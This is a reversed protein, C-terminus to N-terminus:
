SPVRAPDLQLQLRGPPRPTAAFIDLLAARDTSRVMWQDEGRQDIVVGSGLAALPEALLDLYAPAAAGGIVALTVVPPLQLLRRRELEPGSLLSPDARLAAQIVENDPQRTQVVVKGARGGVLRSARALLTLAQEAARYRPAALEQDFELFAVTEATSVRQLVAETGVIVRAGPRTRASAGAGGRPAAGSMEDVPERLLAELQERAKTVGIRIARFVTSACESCIVPRVTHCRPCVLTNDDDQRVSSECRECTALTGCRHCALMQARGTRNLVCLVRRGARLSRVLAESYLGARAIDEDRRDIVELTAWGARERARDITLPEGGVVAQAELSPTPSVLLTPVGVRRGREVAVERAHWTPSGENQLTEDHEDIVVIAGLGAVPAFVASRTGVVSCGAAGRAWGDPHLAVRVGARRMAEAMTRAVSFTPCVVLVHGLRAADIAVEVPLAAGPTAMPPLRLLSAGSGAGLTSPVGDDFVPAPSALRPVMSPPSAAGLLTPLRAAWRWAAWRCLEIIEAPPGVGSIKSITRLNVGPPTEVDIDVVWAAVQRGHLPVRVMTGIALASPAFREVLRQPVLYDFERTISAVDAVVRVVRDDAARPRV